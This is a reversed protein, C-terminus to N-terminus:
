KCPSSSFPVQHYKSMFKLSVQECCLILLTESDQMGNYTVSKRTHPNKQLKISKKGHEKFRNKTRVSVDEMMRSLHFTWNFLKAKMVNVIHPEEYSM